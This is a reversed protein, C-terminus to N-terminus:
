VLVTGAGLAQCKIHQNGLSWCTNLESLALGAGRIAAEGTTVCTRQVVRM